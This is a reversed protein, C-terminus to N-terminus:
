RWLLVVFPTNGDWNLLMPMGHELQNAPLLVETFIFTTIILLQKVKEWYTREPKEKMVGLKIRGAEESFVFCLFMHLLICLFLQANPLNAFQMTTSNDGARVVSHLNPALYKEQRSISISLSSRKQFGNLYEQKTESISPCANAQVNRHSPFFTFVHITKRFLRSARLPWPLVWCSAKQWFRAPCWSYEEM